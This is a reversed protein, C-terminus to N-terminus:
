TSDQWINLGPLNLCALMPASRFLFPCHVPRNDPMIVSSSGLQGAGAQARCERKVVRDSHVGGNDHWCQVFRGRDLRKKVINL